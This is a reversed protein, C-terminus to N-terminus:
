AQAREPREVRPRYLGLFVARAVMLLV